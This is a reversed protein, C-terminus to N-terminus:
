KESWFNLKNDKLVQYLSQSIAIVNEETHIPDKDDDNKHGLNHLVYHIIEHLLAEQQQSEPYLTCIHISNYAVWSDGLDGSMVPMENEWKVKVIHGGIKLSNIKKM